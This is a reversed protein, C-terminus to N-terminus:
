DRSNIPNLYRDVIFLGYDPDLHTLMDLSHVIRIALQKASKKVTPTPHSETIRFLVDALNNVFAKTEGALYLPYLREVAMRCWHEIVYYNNTYLLVGYLYAIPTLGDRETGPKYIQRYEPELPRIGYPSLVTRTNRAFETINTQGCPTRDNLNDAKLSIDHVNRYELDIVPVAYSFAFKSFAITSDCTIQLAIGHVQQVHREFLSHAFLQQFTSAGLVHYRFENLGQRRADRLTHTLPIVYAICPPTARKRSSALGGTGFNVFNQPFGNNRLRAWIRSLELTRFHEIYIVRNRVAVPLASALSYSLENLHTLQAESEFVNVKGPALDLTFTLDVPLSSCAIFDYFMHVFPTIQQPALFGQQVQYGGNDVTLETGELYPLARLWGILVRFKNFTHRDVRSGKNMVSGLSLLFKPCATQFFKTINDDQFYGPYNRKVREVYGAVGDVRACIFHRPYATM